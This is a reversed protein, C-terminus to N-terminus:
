NVTIVDSLFGPRQLLFFLPIDGRTQLEANLLHRSLKFDRISTGFTLCIYLKFTELM